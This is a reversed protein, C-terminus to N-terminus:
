DKEKLYKELILTAACKDIIKKKEKRLKYMLENHSFNQRNKIKLRKHNLKENADISTFSEDVKDIEVSLDKQLKEYYSICDNTTITNEGDKYPIGVIIKEINELLVIEKIEKLEFIYNSRKINKYPYAMINEKDTIALGIINSGIDLALIKM